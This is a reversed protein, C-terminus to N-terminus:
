CHMLVCHVPFSVHSTFSLSVKCLQPLMSKNNRKIFADERRLLDVKQLIMRASSLVFCSKIIDNTCGLEILDISQFIFVM